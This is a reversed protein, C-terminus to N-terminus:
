AWLMKHVVLRRKCLFTSPLGTLKFLDFSSKRWDVPHLWMGWVDLKAGVSLGYWLFRLNLILAVDLVLCLSSHLM